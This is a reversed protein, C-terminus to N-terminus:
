LELAGAEYLADVRELVLNSINLAPDADVVSVANIIMKYRGDANIEDIALSALKKFKNLLVMYRENLDQEQKAYNEEEKLAAKQYNTMKEEWTAAKTQIEDQKKQADLSTIFGKAYEDNLKAVEAELKDREAMLNAMKTDNTQKAKSLKQQFENMATELAVGDIANLKSAAMVYDLDVFVVDGSVVCESSKVPTVEAATDADVNNESNADATANASAKSDGCSVMMLSIALISLLSKKM